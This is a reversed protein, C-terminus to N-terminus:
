CCNSTILVGTEVGPSMGVLPM